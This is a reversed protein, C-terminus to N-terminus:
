RPSQVALIRAVRDPSFFVQGEFCEKTRAGVQPDILCYGGDEFAELAGIVEVGASHLASIYREPSSASQLAWAILVRCDPFEHLQEPLELFELASFLAHWQPEVDDELVPKDASLNLLIQEYQAPSKAIVHTYLLCEM